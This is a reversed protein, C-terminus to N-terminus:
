VRPVSNMMRILSRIVPLTMSNGIAERVNKDSGHKLALTLMSGSWGQFFALQKTGLRCARRNERDMMWLRHTSARAKTVCPSKQHCAVFRDDSSGADWILHGPTTSAFILAKELNRSFVKGHRQLQNFSKWVLDDAPMSAFPVPQNPYVVAASQFDASMKTRAESTSLLGLLYYRDRHQPVWHESNVTLERAVYGAKELAKLLAKQNKSHRFGVVCELLFLRPRKEEVFKICAKALGKVRDDSDQELLGSKSYSQCPFGIGHADLDGRNILAVAKKNRKRMDFDVQSHHAKRMLDVLWPQQETAHVLQVDRGPFEETCAMFVTSMGACDESVYFKDCTKAGLEHLVVTRLADFKLQFLSFSCCPSFQCILHPFRTGRPPVEEGWRTVDSPSM